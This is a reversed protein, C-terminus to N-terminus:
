LNHTAGSTSSTKLKDLVAEVARSLLYWWLTGASMIWIVALAGYKWTLAYAVGSIPLDLLMVFVWVIGWNQLNPILYGIM